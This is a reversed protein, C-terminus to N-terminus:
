HKSTNMVGIREIIHMVSSRMETRIEEVERRLALNQAYLARMENTENHNNGPRFIAGTLEDNDSDGFLPDIHVESEHGPNFSNIQAV